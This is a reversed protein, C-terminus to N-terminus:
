SATMAYSRRYEHAAEELAPAVDRALMVGARVARQAAEEFRALYKAEDGYLADLKAAGFPHNSGRLSGSFDSTIPISSNTAVPADAQPLRIGGKAIGHEDRV